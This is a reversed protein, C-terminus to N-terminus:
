ELEEDTLESLAPYITTTEEGENYVEIEVLLDEDIEIVEYSLQNLIHNYDKLNKNVFSESFYISERNTKNNVENTLEETFEKLDCEYMKNIRSKIIDTTKLAKMKGREKAVILTYCQRQIKDVIKKKKENSNTFLM